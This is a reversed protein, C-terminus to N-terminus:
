RLSKFFIKFIKVNINNTSLNVVFSGCHLFFSMYQLLSGFCIIVILIESEDSGSKVNFFNFVRDM